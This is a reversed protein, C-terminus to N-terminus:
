RELRRKWGDKELGGRCQLHLGAEWPKMEQFAERRESGQDGGLKVKLAQSLYSEEERWGKKSDRSEETAEEKLM